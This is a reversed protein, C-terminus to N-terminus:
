LGLPTPPTPVQITIEGTTINARVSIGIFNLTVAPQVNVDIYVTDGRLRLKLSDWGFIVQETLLEQLTTSEASGIRHLILNSAKQGIFTEATAVLNSLTRDLAIGTSFEVRDFADNVLWTSIGRVIRLFGRDQVVEIPCVGGALLREIDGATLVTEVKVLQVPQFTISDGDSDLGAWMGAVMAAIMYPPFDTLVGFQDIDTGGPAVLEVRDNNLSVARGLWDSVAEGGAGGVVARRYRGSRSMETVHTAAVDHIAADSTLPTTFAIAVGELATYAAVWDANMTTGEGGGQLFVFNTNAPTKGSTGRIASVVPLANFWDTMARLTSTVQAATLISVASVNDLGFASADQPNLTTTAAVYGARTNIQDVTAEVTPYSALTISFNDSPVYQIATSVTTESVTMTATGNAMEQASYVGTKIDVASVAVLALPNDGSHTATHTYKGPAASEIAALLSTIDSYSALTLNLNDGSAGTCTTTLHSSTITMTAASGSGTYQLQFAEKAYPTYLLTFATRFLNDRTYRDIGIRVTVKKGAISGDEIKISIQNDDIGWNKAKITIATGGLSDLLDKSAQTAPDVRVGYVMSAGGKFALLVGDLLEGSRILARADLDNMLLVPTKPQLGHGHGVVAVARTGGTPTPILGTDDVRAFVSPHRTFKGAFQFYSAM